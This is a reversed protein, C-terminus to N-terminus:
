GFAFMGGSDDGVSSVEQKDADNCPPLLRLNVQHVHSPYADIARIAKEADYWRVCWVEGIDVEFRRSELLGSGGVHIKDLRRDWKQFRSGGFLVLYTPRSGFVLGNAADALSPM